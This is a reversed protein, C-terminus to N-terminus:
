GEKATGYDNLSVDIDIIPAPISTIGIRELGATTLESFTNEKIEGAYAKVRIKKGITARVNEIEKESVFFGFPNGITIYDCRSNLVLRCVTQIEAFSLLGTDVNCKCLRGRCAHKIQRLENALYDVNGSKLENLNVAFEFEDAGNKLGERVQCVKSAITQNGAAIDITQCVKLRNGVYRKAWRVFSGPVCIAKVHQEIAKDLNNKLDCYTATRDTIMLDSIKLLEDLM